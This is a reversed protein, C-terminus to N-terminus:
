FGPPRRRYLNHPPRPIQNQLHRSSSAFKEIFPYFEELADLLHDVSDTFGRISTTTCKLHDVTRMLPESARKESM